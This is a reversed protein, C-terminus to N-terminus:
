PWGELVITTPKSLPTFAREVPLYFGTIRGKDVVPYAEHMHAGEVMFSADVPKLVAGQGIRGIELFETDRGITRSYGSDFTIPVPQSAVYRKQQQSPRESLEVPQRVIESACGAVFCLLLVAKCSRLM